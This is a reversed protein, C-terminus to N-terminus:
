EARLGRAEILGRWKAIEAVLVGRTEAEATPAVVGDTLEELRQRLGQGALVQLLAAHLRARVEAPTGKPVALGAWTTSEFGPLAAEAVTPVVPLRPSRGASTIGLVRLRADQMLASAGVTTSITVPLEGGLVATLGQVDSRYPVQTMQIGAAASLLEGTLHHSSGPGLTGYQVAGPERRAAAILAPLDAFPGEARAVLVFAYRLFISIWDFGAVADFGTARGFAAAVGHSGTLLGLTH